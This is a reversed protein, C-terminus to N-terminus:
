KRGYARLKRFELAQRLRDTCLRPIGLGAVLSLVPETNVDWAHVELGARRIAAVSEETMQSPHLHVARAKALRGRQQAQYTVVDLKMWSETPPILLDVALGPCLDRMALLLAPEYSTVEWADWQQSFRKLIGAILVVCEPEPGKIEIELGIRGGIQELVEALTSIRSPSSESGLDSRVEVQRLQALTYAFIPGCASTIDDLYYYHYVVPVQDATLRVDLEVADASLQIAREFAALTNEPVGEPAGRHAVIELTM